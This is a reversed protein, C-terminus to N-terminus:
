STRSSVQAIIFQGGSLQLPNMCCTFRGSTNSNLATQRHDRDRVLPDTVDSPKPEACGKPLYTLCDPRAVNEM